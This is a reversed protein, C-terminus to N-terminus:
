CHISHNALHHDRIVALDLENLDQGLIGNPEIRVIVKFCKCCVYCNGSKTTLLSLPLDSPVDM